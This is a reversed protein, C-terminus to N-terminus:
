TSTPDHTDLGTGRGIANNGPLWLRKSHRAMSCAIPVIRHHPEGLRDGPLQYALGPGTLTMGQRCLRAVLGPGKPGRQPVSPRKGARRKAEVHSSRTLNQRRSCLFSPSRRKRPAAQAGARRASADFNIFEPPPKIARDSTARSGPRLRSPSRKPPQTLM